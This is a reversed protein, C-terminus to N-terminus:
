GELNLIRQLEGIIASATAARNSSVALAATAAGSADGIVAHLAALAPPYQCPAQPTAARASSITPDVPKAGASNGYNQAADVAARSRADTLQSRVQNACYSAFLFRGKESLFNSRAVLWIRDEIPVKSNNLIDVATGNFDDAFYMHFPFNPEILRLAALNVKIM